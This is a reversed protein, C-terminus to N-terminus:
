KKLKARFAGPSEGTVLKFCRGFSSHSNFGVEYGISMTTRWDYKVLLIKAEDVRYSMLYQSFSVNKNKNLYESLQHSSVDVCSALKKLTLLTDKFLKEKNMVVDLDIELRDLDTNSLHSKLYGDNSIALADLSFYKVFLDIVFLLSVSLYAFVFYWSLISRILVFDDLFLYFLISVVMSQYTYVLLRLVSRSGLLVGVNSDKTFSKVSYFLFIIAINFFIYTSYEYFFLQHDISFFTIVPKLLFLILFNLGIVYDIAKISFKNHIFYFSYNLLFFLSLFPIFFSSVGSTLLSNNLINISLFLFMIFFLFLYFSVMLDKKQKFNILVNLSIFLPIGFVFFLVILPYLSVIDIM